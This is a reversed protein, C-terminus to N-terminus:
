MKLSHSKKIKTWHVVALTEHMCSECCAASSMNQAESKFSFSHVKMLILLSKFGIEAFAFDNKNNQLTITCFVQSPREAHPPLLFLTSKSIM